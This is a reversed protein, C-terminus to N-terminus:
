VSLELFHARLVSLVPRPCVMLDWAKCVLSFCRIRFPLKEVHDAFLAGYPSPGWLGGTDGPNRPLGGQQSVVLDEAFLLRTANVGLVPPLSQLEIFDHLSKNLTKAASHQYSKPNLTCSKRGPVYIAYAKRGCTGSVKPDSKPVHVRFTSAKEEAKEASM